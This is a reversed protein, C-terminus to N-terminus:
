SGRSPARRACSREGRRPPAQRPPRASSTVPSTRGPRSRRGPWRRQGPGGDLAPREAEAGEALLKRMSANRVATSADEFLFVAMDADHETAREAPIGGEAGVQRLATVLMLGEGGASPRLRERPLRGVVALRLEDRTAPDLSRLGKRPRFDAPTGRRFSRIM